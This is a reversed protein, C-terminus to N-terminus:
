LRGYIRAPLLFAPKAGMQTFPPAQDSQLVAYWRHHQHSRVDFLNRGPHLFGLEPHLGNLSAASRFLGALVDLTLTGVFVTVAHRRLAIARWFVALSELGAPPNEAHAHPGGLHGCLRQALPQAPAGVALRWLQGRRPDRHAPARHSLWFTHPTHRNADETVNHADWGGLEELIHRRFFLTTGGLPVPLKLRALGPLVIRFWTAYEITFCRSLWNTRSDYFDLTGQVCALKEDSEAFRRAVKRLQDPEPADEADYVGIISGRCHDLAYNLARPKTKITGRPVDIATIWPPLKTGALTKATTIDDREMVLIVQLLNKPYDLQRLHTLLHSVIASEKLLPVMISIKPLATDTARNKYKFSALAGRHLFLIATTLKLAMNAILTLTGWLAFVLFTIAPAFTSTLAVLAVLSWLAIHLVKFNLDHCSERADVRHEARQILAAEETKTIYSRMQDPCAFARRLPGFTQRLYSQNQDFHEPRDTLIVTVDSSLRWPLVGMQLATAPGLIKLLDPNPPFHTLDIYGEGLREAQLQALRTAEILGLSILTDSETANGDVDSNQLQLDIAPPLLNAETLFELLDPPGLDEMQATPPAGTPPSATNHDM